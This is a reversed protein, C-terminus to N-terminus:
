HNRLLSRLGSPQNTPDDPLFGLLVGFRIDLGIKKGCPEWNLIQSINNRVTGDLGCRSQGSIACLVSARHPQAAAECNTVQSQKGAESMCQLLINLWPFTPLSITLMRRPGDPQTANNSYPTLCGM